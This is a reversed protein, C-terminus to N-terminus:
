YSFFITLILFIYCYFLLLEKNKVREQISKWDSFYGIVLDVEANEVLDIWEEDTSVKHSAIKNM